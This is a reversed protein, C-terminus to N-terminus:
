SDFHLVEGEWLTQIPVTSDFCAEKSCSRRTSGRCHRPRLYLQTQLALRAPLPCLQLHRSSGRKNRRVPKARRRVHNNILTFSERVNSGRISITPRLVRIVIVWSNLLYM